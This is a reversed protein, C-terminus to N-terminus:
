AHAHPKTKMAATEVLTAQGWQPARCAQYVRADLPAAAETESPNVAIGTEPRSLGREYIARLPLLTV